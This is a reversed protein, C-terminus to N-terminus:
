AAAFKIRVGTGNERLIEMEGNLQKVFIRMLHYGLTRSEEVGTDHPLGIGNDKVALELNKDELCRLSVAIKGQRREPFAHLYCNSILETLVFGLPVAKDIGLQVEQIEKKIEIRRGVTSYSAALRSLLNGIYQSIKIDSLNESQYLLEHCLAMSGVRHQAEDLMRTLEQNQAYHSQIRLLSQIVALNNKVRHHIERLLVEKERLSTKIQEDSRNRETIDRSIGGIAIINRQDDLIPFKRTEFIRNDGKSNVWSQEEFLSEKSKMVEEDSKRSPATQNLPILEEVTKGIVDQRNLGFFEEYTKNVLLHRRKTDKFYVVDPLAEILSNLLSTKEQLELQAKKWDDVDRTVSLMHPEGNLDIIRASALGTKVRGDKLRFQLELNSVHGGDEFADVLRNRDVPSHWINIELSSKGVVEDRTFGTLETFGYNVDIYLGDSLRNITVADPSTQYITRFREESERLTKEAKKRAAIDRAAALIVKTEGYEIPSLRVEVPFSTGDKRTHKAEFTTPINAWFRASDGRPVTDPDIDVVSKSLLEERTYGLSTCAQQNVELFRGSFDHVFIADAAQDILSRFREEIRKSAEEAKKRETIDSFSIVVAYPLTEGDRILPRTNVSIWVTDGSGKFIGMVVNSLPKGTRLTITSAHEDVPCPFGQLTVCNWMIDFSSKGVVEEGRVGLIREASANFSLIVHQNDQLIVGEAMSDVLVHYRKESERVRKDAQHKYLATEITSRLESLSIPKGIYGYPETKKARELVDKESYGSLYVVPIDFGTRIRDAADIGDIDGSLKIDMLILDPRLDKALKVAKEGTSVTGGVRYGLNKLSLELDEALLAEDEVILISASTQEQSDDKM